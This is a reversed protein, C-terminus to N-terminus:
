GQDINNGTQKQEVSRLRQLLPCTGAVDEGMLSAQLHNLFAGEWIGSLSILELDAVLLLCGVEM